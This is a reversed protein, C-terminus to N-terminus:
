FRKIQLDLFIFNNMACRFNQYAATMNDIPLDM